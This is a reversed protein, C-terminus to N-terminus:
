IANSPSSSSTETGLSFYTRGATGHTRGVSYISAGGDQQNIYGFPKGSYPGNPIAHLYNPILESLSNPFSKHDQQYARLALTLRAASYNMKVTCWDFTIKPQIPTSSVINSMLKGVLNPTFVWLFHNKPTFVLPTTPSSGLTACSTHVTALEANTIRASNEVTDNPHWYFSPAIRLATHLWFLSSNGLLSNFMGASMLYNVGRATLSSLTNRSSYWELKLATAPTGSAVLSIYANNLTSAAILLNHSSIPTSTAINMITALGKQQADLGFLYEIIDAYSTTMKNGILVGRVAQQLASAGKDSHALQEAYINNASFSARYDYLPPLHTAITILNPNTAAPDQFYKKSGAILLASYLASSATSKEAASITTSSLIKIQAAAQQMAFYANDSDAIHVTPLSLEPHARQASDSAVTSGLINLTILVLVGAVLIAGIAVATRKLATHKHLPPPTNTFTSPAASGTPTQSFM